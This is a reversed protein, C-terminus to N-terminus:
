YNNLKQTYMMLEIWNLVFFVGILPLIIIFDESSANNFMVQCVKLVVLMLLFLLLALTLFGLKVHFKKNSEIDPFEIILKPLFRLSPLRRIRTILIKDDKYRGYFDKDNATMNGTNMISLTKNTRLTKHKLKSKFDEQSSNSQIEKKLITIM